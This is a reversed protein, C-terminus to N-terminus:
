ERQQLKLNYDSDLGFFNEGSVYYPNCNMRQIKLQRGSQSYEYCDYSEKQTIQNFLLIHNERTIECLYDYQTGNHTYGQVRYDHGSAADIQIQNFNTVYLHMGIAAKCIYYPSMIKNENIQPAPHNKELEAPTEKYLINFIWYGFFVIMSLSWLNSARFEKITFERITNLAFSSFILALIWHGTSFLITVLILYLISLLTYTIKVPISKKKNYYLPDSCQSSEDFDSDTSKEDAVKQDSDSKM